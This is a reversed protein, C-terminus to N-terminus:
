KDGHSSNWRFSWKFIDFWRFLQLWFKKICNKKAMTDVAASMSASKENLISECHFQFITEAIFSLQCNVADNMVKQWKFEFCDSLTALQRSSNRTLIQLLNQECQDFWWYKRWNKLDVYDYLPPNSCLDHNCHFNVQPNILNTVAIIILEANFRM